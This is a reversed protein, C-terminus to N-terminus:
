RMSNAITAAEDATLTESSLLFIRDPTSWFFGAGDPGQDLLVGHTGSRLPVDVVTGRRPFHMVLGPNAELRAGLERAEVPGQGFVRFALTMFEGFRLSSSTTMRFPTAEWIQTDRQAADDRYVAVIVPGGEAMLTTGEWERPITVDTVGAARLAAQIADVHLPATALKLNETVQFGPAGSVGAAPLLVHFGALREAAAADDVPFSNSSVPKMTFTEIVNDPLNPRKVDVVVVRGLLLRNWLQAARARPGPLAILAVVSAVTAVGLQRRRRAALRARRGLRAQASSIDPQFDRPVALTRLGEDIWTHDHRDSPNQHAM